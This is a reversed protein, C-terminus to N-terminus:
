SNYQHDIKNIIWVPIEIKPWTIIPFLCSQRVTLLIGFWNTYCNFLCWRFAAETVMSDSQWIKRNIKDMYRLKCGPFLYFFDPSHRFTLLFRCWNPIFCNFLCWRYAAETVISDSQWIQRNIKDLYRLKCGPFLYFFDPSHRVTLLFRCWNTYCNFLCWRFAAEYDYQWVWVKRNIKDLYRM